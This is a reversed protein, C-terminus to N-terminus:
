DFTSQFASPIKLFDGVQVKRICEMLDSLSDPPFALQRTSTNWVFTSISNCEKWFNAQGQKGFVREAEKIWEDLNGYRTITDGNKLSIQMPTELKQAQIEIGTRNLIERLPMGEDLGVLTTAGAEFVFGKRFYSSVCGGPLYNQELVIVSKGAKALLVAASLSGLGSGIVVVDIEKPLNRDSTTDFYTAPNMVNM